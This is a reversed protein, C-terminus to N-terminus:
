APTSSWMIVSFYDAIGISSNGSSLISCVLHIIPISVLIYSVKWRWNVSIPTLSPPLISLFFGKAQCTFWKRRIHDLSMYIVSVSRAGTFMKTNKMALIRNRKNDILTCNYQRTNLKSINSLGFYVWRQFLAHDAPWLSFGIQFESQCVQMNIQSLPIFGYFVSICVWTRFSCHLIFLM